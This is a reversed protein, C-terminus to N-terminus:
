SLSQVAVQATGLSIHLYFGDSMQRKGGHYMTPDRTRHRHDTTVMEMDIHVLPNAQDDYICLTNV